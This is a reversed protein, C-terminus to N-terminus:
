PSSLITSLPTRWDSHTIHPTINARGLNRYLASPTQDEKEGRPKQAKTTIHLRFPIEGRWNSYTETSKDGEFASPAVLMWPQPNQDPHALAGAPM